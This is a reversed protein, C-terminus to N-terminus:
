TNILISKTLPDIKDRAVFQVKPFAYFEAIDTKGSRLVELKGVANRRGTRYLWFQEPAVSSEL